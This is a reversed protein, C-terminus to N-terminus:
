LATLRILAFSINFALGALFGFKAKRTLSGDWLLFMLLLGLTFGLVLGVFLDLTTGERQAWETETQQLQLWTEPAIREDTVPLADAFLAIRLASLDEESLISGGLQRDVQWLSSSNSFDTSSRSTATVLPESVACHVVAESPIRLASLSLGDPALVRGQWILRITKNRLTPDCQQLQQKVTALSDHPHVDIDRTEGTVFRIRLRMRPSRPQPQTNHDNQTVQM